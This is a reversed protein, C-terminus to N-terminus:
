GDTDAPDPLDAMARADAAHDADVLVVYRSPEIRSRSSFDRRGRRMAHALMGLVVGVIAGIVTWSALLGLWGMVTEFITFVSLLAGIIFGTVAGSGAGELAARGYRKRGTM